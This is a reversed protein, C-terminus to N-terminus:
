DYGPLPNRDTESYILIVSSTKKEYGLEKRAM